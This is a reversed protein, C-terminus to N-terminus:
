TQLPTRRRLPFLCIPIPAKAPFICPPLKVHLNLEEHLLLLSPTTHLASHPHDSASGTALAFATPQFTFLFPTFASSGHLQLTCPFIPLTTKRMPLFPNVTSFEFIHTLSSSPLIWIEHTQLYFGRSPDISTSVHVQSNLQQQHYRPAQVHVPAYLQPFHSSPHQVSLYPRFESAPRPKSRLAAFSPIM